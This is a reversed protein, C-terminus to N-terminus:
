GDNLDEWIKITDRLLACEEYMEEAELRMLEGTMYLYMDEDNLGEKFAINTYHNLMLKQLKFKEKDSLKVYNM